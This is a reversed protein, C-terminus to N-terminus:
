WVYLFSIHTTAVSHSPRAGLANRFNISTNIEACVFLKHNMFYVTMVRQLNAIRGIYRDIGIPLRCGSWHYFIWCILGYAMKYLHEVINLINKSLVLAYM